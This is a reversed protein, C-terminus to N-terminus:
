ISKLNHDLKLLAERLKLKHLDLIKKRRVLDHKPIVTLLEETKTQICDCESQFQQQIMEYLNIEKQKKM